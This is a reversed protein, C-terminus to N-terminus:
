ASIHLKTILALGPHDRLLPIRLHNRNAAESFSTKQRLVKEIWSIFSDVFLLCVALSIPYIYKSLLYQKIVYFTYYNWHVFCFQCFHVSVKQSLQPPNETNEWWEERRRQSVCFITKHKDSNKSPYLLNFNMTISLMLFFYM